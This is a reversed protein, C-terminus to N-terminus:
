NALGLAALFWNTGRFAIPCERRRDEQNRVM